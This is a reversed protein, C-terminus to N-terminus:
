LEAIVKTTFKWGFMEIYSKANEQSTVYEGGINIM